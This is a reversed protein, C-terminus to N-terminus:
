LKGKGVGLGNYSSCRQQPESARELTVPRSSSEESRPLLELEALAGSPNNSM